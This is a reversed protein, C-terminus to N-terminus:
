DVHRGIGQFGPLVGNYNEPAPTIASLLFYTAASKNQLERIVLNRAKEFQLFYMGVEHEEHQIARKAVIPWLVIPENPSVFCRTVISTM